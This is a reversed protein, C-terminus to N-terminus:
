DSGYVPTFILLTHQVAFLLSTLKSEVTAEKVCTDGQLQLYIFQQSRISTTPCHSSQNPALQQTPPLHFLPLSSLFHNRSCAFSGERVCIDDWYLGKMGEMGNCIYHVM